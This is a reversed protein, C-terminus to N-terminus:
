SPKGSRRRRVLWAGFLALLSGGVDRIPAPKEGGPVSCDCGGETL